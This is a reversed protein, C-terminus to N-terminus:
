SIGNTFAYFIVLILNSAMQTKKRIQVTKTKNGLTLMDEESVRACVLIDVVHLFPFQVVVMQILSSGHSVTLKSEVFIVDKPSKSFFLVINAWLM